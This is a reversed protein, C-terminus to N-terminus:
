SRAQPRQSRSVARSDQVCEASGTEIEAKLRAIREMVTAGIQEYPDADGARAALEEPQLPAGYRVRLKAPRCWNAGRPLATGTGQIYAPVVPVKSQAMIFGIGRKAKGLRGDTSRTGEPFLALVGNHQLIRMASRMAGIDGRERDLPIVRVRRLWWRSLPGRFLSDRAIFTVVRHKIGAGLVPPDLFSTHNAAIICAGQSPVHEVGIWETRFLLKLFLGCVWRSAKYWFLPPDKIM